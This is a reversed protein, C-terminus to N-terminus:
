KKDAGVSTAPKATLRSAKGAVVYSWQYDKYVVNDSRFREAQEMYQALIMTVDSNTPLANQDFLDFDEFPKYQGTLLTNGLGLVANILKLKFLNVGDNPSKKALQSIEAHLGNLQVILKELESVQQESKM